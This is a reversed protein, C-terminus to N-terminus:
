YIKLTCNTIICLFLSINLQLVLVQQHVTSIKNHKVTHIHNQVTHWKSDGEIMAYFIIKFRITDSFETYFVTLNRDNFLTYATRTPCEEFCIAIHNAFLVNVFNEKPLAM